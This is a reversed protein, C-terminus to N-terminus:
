CKFQASCLYSVHEMAKATKHSYIRKHLSYRSYYLEYVSQADKWNYAITGNIVRAAEILRHLDLHRLESSGFAANKIGVSSSGTHLDGGGSKHRTRYLGVLLLPTLQTTSLHPNRPHLHELRIWTSGTRKTPFSRSSSPNRRHSGIPQSYDAGQVQLFGDALVWRGLSLRPEGRILDKIFNLCDKSLPISNEEVLADLMMESAEEHCWYSGDPRPGRTPLLLSMLAAYVRRINSNYESSLLSLTDTSSM